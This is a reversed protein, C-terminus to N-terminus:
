LAGMSVHCALVTVHQRGSGKASSVMCNRHFYPPRFTHDACLWRPPFIVFDAIATGAAVPYSLLLSPCSRAKRSVEAHRQLSLLLTQGMINCSQEVKRSSSQM